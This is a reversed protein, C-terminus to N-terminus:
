LLFTVIPTVYTQRLILWIHGIVRINFCMCTLWPVDIEGGAIEGGYM